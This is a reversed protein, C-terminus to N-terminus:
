NNLMGSDIWKKVLSIQCDSLKLSSSPMPQYGTAHTISGYLKGNKALPLVNTYGVLNINGSQSTNNHCGTCYYELIPVLHKSYSAAQASNTSGTTECTINKAGQNIWNAILQVKDNSFPASPPPPMREKSTDIIVQYLKSKKANGATIGKRVIKEYSTLDYGDEATKSDHCGSTACNALFLPLIATNFCVQNQANTTTPSGCPLSDLAATSGGGGSTDTGGNTSSSTDSPLPGGKEYLCGGLLGMLIAFFFANIFAKM